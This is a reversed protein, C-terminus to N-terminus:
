VQIRSGAVEQARLRRLEERCYKVHNQDGVRFARLMEDRLKYTGSSQRIIEGMLREIEQKESGHAHQYEQYLEELDQTRGFDINTM